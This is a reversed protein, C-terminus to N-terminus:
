AVTNIKIVIYPLQYDPYRDVDPLYNAQDGTTDPDHPDHSVQYTENNEAYGSNNIPDTQNCPDTVLKHTENYEHYGM